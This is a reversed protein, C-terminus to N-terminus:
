EGMRTKLFEKPTQGFQKRFCKSFYKPDAFGVEYALESTNLHNELLLKAAYNLRNKKIFAGLSEGTAKKVREYLLTRSVGLEKSFLDINVETNTINDELVKIVKRLFDKHSDTLELKDIDGILKNEYREKVHEYTALLNNIRLKLMDADLPKALYEDAGCGLGEMYDETANRATLLIFPIHRTTEQQKLRRCFEFGNMKPMMVDSVILSPTEHEMVSLAHYGNAATLVEYADRLINEMFALLDENDEVLLIKPVTRSTPLAINNGIPLPEPEAKNLGADPNNVLYEVKEDDTYYSPHLPINVTFCTGQGETSELQLTGHHLAVLKKVLSLGIGAGIQTQTHSNNIRYYQQFIHHIEKESIGIGTDRIHISISDAVNLAHNVVIEVRVDKHEPTYKFANNLLNYIIKEIKDKDFYGEAKKANSTISFYIQKKEAVFNFSEAITEVVGVIEGKCTELRLVGDELKSLDMVQTVLRLLRKSNHLIIDLYEKEKATHRGTRLLEEAPGIVLSLPTRFEHSINTYFRTKIRDLEKLQESQEQIKKYTRSNALAISIYTAINKLLNVNKQEFANKKESKVVLVGIVEATPSQLPIYMASHIADATYQENPTDLYLKVDEKLNNSFIAQSKQFAYISLRNNETLPISQSSIDGKYIEWYDIYANSTDVEGIALLPEDLVDSLLQYLREFVEELKISATIKKGMESFLMVNSHQIRLEESQAYLRENQAEIEQKQKEIEFTRQQVQDQLRKRQTKLQSVRWFYGSLVLSILGAGVLLKFLLTNWFPPHIYFSVRTEQPNWIGNNNAGKLRFHLWKGEPLNSYSAFRRNRVYSWDKDVGEMLFAFENQEPFLFNLTAFELTLVNQDYNLEISREYAINSQLTFTRTKKSESAYPVPQNYILLNSIYTPPLYDNLQISEPAIINFGNHGGVYLKGTSTKAGASLNFRNSQLGDEEFFNTIEQTTTNLYSLGKNSTVWVNGEEDILPIRTEHSSLGEEKGYRKVSQTALDYRLLGDGTIWLSGSSFCIHRVLSLEKAQQFAYQTTDATLHKPGDALLTSDIRQLYVLMSQNAVWLRGDPTIAVSGNSKNRLGKSYKQDQRIHVYTGTRVKFYILGDNAAIWLNGVNDAIADLLVDAPLTSGADEQYHYNRAQGTPVHYLTLGDRRSIGAVLNGPLKLMKQVVGPFINRMQVTGTQPNFDAIGKSTSIWVSTPSYEMFAHVDNDFAQGPFRSKEYHQFKAARKNYYNLGGAAVWIGAHNDEFITTVNNSLVGGQAQETDSVVSYAKTHTDFQLLGKETGIWLTNRTRPYLTLLRQYGKSINEPFFLYNEFRKESLHYSFLGDGITAIWLVEGDTWLDKVWHNQPANSDIFHEYHTFTGEKAHFCHLGGGWTGLWLNGQADEVIKEIVNYNFIQASEQTRFPFHTFTGTETEFRSLGFWCGVWLTHQRDIYLANVYNSPLSEPDDPNGKFYRKTNTAPHYHILGLNSTGIWLGDKGDGIIVKVEPVIGEESLYPNFNESEYGNFRNIGRNSGVWLFGAKDQTLTNIESSLLGNGVDYHTFRVQEGQGVACSVGGLMGMLFFVLQKM